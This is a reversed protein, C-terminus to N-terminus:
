EAPFALTSLWANEARSSDLRTFQVIVPVDSEVVCAYDVDLPMAEPDILDNFRVHRTRRAAVTLRYPGVPERDSYYITLGLHATEDSANLISLEDRSTYDPERGTS